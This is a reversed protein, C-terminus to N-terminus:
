SALDAMIKGAKTEVAIREDTHPISRAYATIGNVIDWVSRAQGEEAQASEVSAQAQGKTFGRSQLWSRVADKQKFDVPIDTNKAKQVAGVLQTTSEEAYRRLYKDAEYVFRDTAGSTHRINLEKVNSAGWVIRNDCVYRYLFTTLGFTASGVESNWAFFGRFLTENGVEVPNKPDVM